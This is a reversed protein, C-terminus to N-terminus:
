SAEVPAAGTKRPRAADRWAAPNSGVLRTFARSFAAESDYGVAEAVTRVKTAREALLRTALQMRWATLYRMPPQGVVQTFRAALVSRSTGAEGALLELTWARAPRAHLLSLARAVLPEHLGALWGSAPSASLSDVHCRIAAIFMLESLRLLVERSGPRQERLESMALDILYGLRHSSQTRRLHLVPPLAALIPNFPRADCGLFGCIFRTREFGKGGEAVIQPLRGAVMQRFFEIAEATTPGPAASPPNALHYPAGHPIVLIDGAQMPQAAEGEIGGWCVGETVVHYSILHQADPLVLPAFASAAPARTSWPAAADVLFFMSGTLRICRFV